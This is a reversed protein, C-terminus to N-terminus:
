AGGGQQGGLYLAALTVGISIAAATEILLILLAAHEPPFQLLGGGGALLLAAVGTFAVLGLLAALRLPWGTLSAAPHRGALLALVGAAGLVSGAQFAGGPAHAGRWLLYGAVLLMLPGYLQVLRELVAGPEELRLQASPALSWVGELALLLVAMELLTDYGRFNILVATVPHDVGSRFMQAAVAQKLGVAQEPLSLLALALGAFLALMLAKILLHQWVPVAERPSRSLRVGDSGM